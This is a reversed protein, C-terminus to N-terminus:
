MCLRARWCVCFFRVALGFCLGRVGTTAAALLGLEVVRRVQLAFEAKGTQNSPSLYLSPPPDISSVEFKSCVRGDTRGM